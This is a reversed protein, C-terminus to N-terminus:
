SDAQSDIWLKSMDIVYIPYTTYGKIDWRVAVFDCLDQIYVNAAQETLIRMLERYLKVQEDESESVLAESLIRDYDDDKFNIFNKSNGSGFRELMARATLSSADLGVVTAKFKRDSYVESLWSSWEVLNITTRVGVKEFQAAVIQATDVHPTYNSPVTIEMEFGDPYGAEALLTRAKEPDYEYYESLEPLFYKEFAPYMSSGVAYGQGDALMDMIQQRDLAYCLAQRVKENNFPVVENNLYVAQVLNMGSAEIDFGDGLELTQDWTLHACFDVAGSQLSMVLTEANEIVKYTVKDLSAGEGWYDPFREIIINEQPSRSVFSFPGTGAPPAESPEEGSGRPIVAATLYALLELDPERTKIVVTRSDPAEVTEITELAPILVPGGKAGRCRDLSYVADDATVTDGNHFVAGERMTFTFIDGSDSVTYNEALAPVINGKSNPKVLGEYVNFLVERTGATSMMHPDLSEDLDQAIGVVISNDQEGSAEGGGQNSKCGALASITLVAIILSLVAKFRRM